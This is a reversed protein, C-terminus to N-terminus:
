ETSASPSSGLRSVSSSLPLLLLAHIKLDLPKTTQYWEGGEKKTGGPIVVFASETYVLRHVKFSINSLCGFRLVLLPLALLHVVGFHCDWPTPM